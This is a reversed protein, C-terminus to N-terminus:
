QRYVKLQKLTSRREIRPKTAAVSSKEVQAKRFSRRKEAGTENSPVTLNPRDTTAKRTGLVFKKAENMLDPISSRRRNKTARTKKEKAAEDQTEALFEETRNMQELDAVAQRQSQDMSSRIQAVLSLEIQKKEEAKIRRLCQELWSRITVLIIMECIFHKMHIIRDVRTQSRSFECLISMKLNRRTSSSVEFIFHSLIM